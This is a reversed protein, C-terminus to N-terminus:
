YPVLVLFSAILHIGNLQWNAVLLFCIIRAELSKVELTSPTCKAM